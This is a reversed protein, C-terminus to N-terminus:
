LYFPILIAFYIITFIKALLTKYSFFLHLTCVYVCLCFTKNKLYKRSWICNSGKQEYNNEAGVCVVMSDYILHFVEDFHLWINLTVFFFCEFLVLHFDDLTVHFDYYIEFVSFSHSFNQLNIQLKFIVNSTIVWMITVWSVVFICCKGRSLKSLFSFLRKILLTFIM